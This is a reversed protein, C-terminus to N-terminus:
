LLPQIKKLRKQAIKCYEPNIDIGIYNRKLKKAVICTTGSGVFPDLVIGGEPCGALIMPIVLDEPFTAFHLNKIDKAKTRIIIWVDGPNKFFYTNELLALHAYHRSRNGKDEKGFYKNKMEELKQEFVEKKYIRGGTIPNYPLNLNAGGGRIKGTEKKYKEIGEKTKLQAIKRWEMPNPTNRKTWDNLRKVPIKIAELNFYYKKSKVLMFIPEYTNTLRDKVSQPMHNPKYWIIINRLIWDQEDIMRLILRFNQLMLCKPKEKAHPPLTKSYRQDLGAPKQFGTKSPEKAGYGQLSGGYCDGHNWFLIGTKKLVRKLEATIKLLKELYEELTPEFGIQGETKYDRLAWYPPSTIICDVFDSPMQKLVELADGCIITNILNKVEFM